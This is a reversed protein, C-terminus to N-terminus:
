CTFSLPSFLLGGSGQIAVSASNNFFFFLLSSIIYPMILFLFNVSAYTGANFVPIFGNLVECVSVAQLEFTISEGTPLISSAALPM